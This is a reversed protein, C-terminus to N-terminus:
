SGSSASAKVARPATAVAPMDAQVTRRLWDRAKTLFRKAIDTRRAWEEFGHPAGTITEFAVAIGQRRLRDAYARDEEYFLDLSGAGIFTPPLGSLDARRAPAAYAPVGDSGPETDLYLRWAARNMRNNWVYHDVADLERRAATRDDLMPALLWQAIPQIGGSDHIRQVLGAALGGGASAGGIVVRAPNIGLSAASQQMWQWAALCDDAPIPFPFKPALRYDVSVVTMGLTRCIDSCSFDNVRAAGLVYGGGHIWLLSADTRRAAPRYIRLRPPGKLAKITVGKMRTPPIFKILLRTLPRGFDYELLKFPYRRVMHRLEPAVLSEDM